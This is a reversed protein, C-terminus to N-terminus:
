DILSLWYGVGLTIICGVIAAGLHLPGLRWFTWNLPGGLAHGFWFGVWALVLYLGLRAANGGRWLHFSAGFLTSIVMGLLLSPTTM